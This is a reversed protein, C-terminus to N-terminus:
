HAPQDRVGGSLNQRQGWLGRCVPDQKGPLATTHAARTYASRRGPLARHLSQARVLCLCELPGPPSLGLVPLGWGPRTDWM